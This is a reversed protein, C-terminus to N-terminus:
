GLGRMGSQPAGFGDSTNYLLADRKCAEILAADTSMYEAVRARLAQQLNIMIEFGDRVKQTMSIQVGSSPVQSDINLV